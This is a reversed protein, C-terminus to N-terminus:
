IIIVQNSDYVSLVKAKLGPIKEPILRATRDNASFGLYGLGNSGSAWVNDEEDLMLSLGYGAAIDKMKGLGGIMRASGIEVDNINMNAGYMDTGFLWVDGETDLVLSHFAGASIKLVKFDKTYKDTYQRLKIIMPMTTNPRTIVNQWIGLQGRNNSGFGWMNGGIGIALSHYLGASIARCKLGRIMTPVNRSVFDGHGLQGFTNEGFSWIYRNTDLLLIHYGGASIAQIKSFSQNNPMTIASFVNRDMNDGLGLQGASNKGCSWVNGELDLIFSCQQNAAVAQAKIGPIIMPPIGMKNGIGLQGYNNSGFGWVNHQADIFLTHTSGTTISMATHKEGNPYEFKGMINIM